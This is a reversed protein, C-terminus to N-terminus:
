ASIPLIEEIRSFKLEKAKYTKSILSTRGIRFTNKNRDALRGIV